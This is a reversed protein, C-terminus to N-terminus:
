TEEDLYAKHNRERLPLEDFVIECNVIVHCTQTVTTYIYVYVVINLDNLKQCHPEVYRKFLIRTFM